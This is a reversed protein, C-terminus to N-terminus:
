MITQQMALFRQNFLQIMGTHYQQFQQNYALLADNYQKQATVDNPDTPPTPPTPPQLAAANGRNQLNTVLQSFNSGGMSALGQMLTPTMPQGSRMSIVAMIRNLINM